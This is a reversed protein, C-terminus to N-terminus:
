GRVKVMAPRLVRGKWRYGARLVESVTMTGDGPEHAVADAVNPDFVEDLPDIRELGERELAGGLAARLQAVDDGGGHSLALDATDLVPLLKEVLSQAAREMQEAQQRAVRKKYNEFDAQLRRLSDLYDDRQRAVAALGALANVEADLVEAELVEAELVEADFVEGEAVVEAPDEEVGGLADGGESSPDSPNM